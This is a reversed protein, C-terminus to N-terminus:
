DSMKIATNHSNSFLTDKRLTKAKVQQLVITICVNKYDIGKITM